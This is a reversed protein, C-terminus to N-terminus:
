QCLSSCVWTGLHWTSWFLIYFGFVFFGIIAMDTVSMVVPWSVAQQM